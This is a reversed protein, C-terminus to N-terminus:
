FLTILIDGFADFTTNKLEFLLLINVKFTLMRLGFQRTIYIKQQRLNITQL